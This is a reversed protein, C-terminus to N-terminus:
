GMLDFIQGKPVEGHKAGQANYYSPQRKKQQGNGNNQNTTEAPAEVKTFPKYLLKFYSIQGITM